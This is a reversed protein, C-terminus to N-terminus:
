HIKVLSLFQLNLMRLLLYHGKNSKIWGYENSKNQFSAEDVLYELPPLTWTLEEFSFFFWYELLSVPALPSGM